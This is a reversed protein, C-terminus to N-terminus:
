NIQVLFMFDEAIAIFVFFLVFHIVFRCELLLYKANDERNSRGNPPSKYGSLAADM